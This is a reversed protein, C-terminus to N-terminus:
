PGHFRIADELIAHTQIALARWDHDRLVRERGTAGLRRAMDEDEFLWSLKAALDAADGPTVLLGNEGDRVFDPIGGIRSAVVPRGCANAEALVMGFSEAESTSPLVVVASRRYQAVLDAESLRGPLRLSTGFEHTLAQFEARRDGDGVLTLTAEPWTRRLIRFAKVLVDVGKWAYSTSLPAV